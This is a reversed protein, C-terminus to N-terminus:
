GTKVDGLGTVQVIIRGAIEKGFMVKMAEQSEPKRIDSTRKIGREYMMRARVRGVQELRILDMLEKKIGYKVRIRMELLKISNTGMIRALESGAYLLWDANTIKAFLAGPTTKYKSTIDREGKEGIWDNLMLANSFPRIPDYYLYESEDYRAISNDVMSNYQMYKEEAEETAKAYPRMELTNSIMFLISIDDTIRPISDIMWRASLPDIYLESVKHGIRTANYVSGKRELFGWESLEALVRGIISKLELSDAYRYGYFTGNMFDLISEESTLFRTAVFALMHTRMVPLVGLKSTIPDLDSLIYRNYLDHAESESRAIMFARGAKDYKPRGARGFLQTVENIGIYESGSREGYRVIDRILVTHAPMNIGYGLTTTSCIAKLLGEKFADEVLERQTNVLGSHHFATGSLIAKALRECQSTPKGLVGLIEDSLLALRKKDEDSLYRAVIGGLRESGAEANRKTSYFALVQKSKRLTDETIRVEPIRSKSDLREERGTDYIAKGNIEIGRELPVPRYNSEILEANMWGAIEKSNGITASLAIIQANRCLRRLKSILVELTPGRSEDDLMHVEDIVICGIDELWGLGHRILSDFKETSAFVMDYDELWRDLSDLDGVSMAIKLYPYANRFEMYKERVLARMPAIYVARKRNGIISNIAAIEAILTKGSATPAAVVFNNGSTLGYEVSMSQPPTLESIGRDEISEILERPVNGILDKIHM